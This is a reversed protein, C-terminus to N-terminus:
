AAAISSNSSGGSPGRSMQCLLVVDLLLLCLANKLETRLSNIDKAHQPSKKPTTSRPEPSSASKVSTESDTSAALIKSRKRASDDKSGSIRKSRSPPPSSDDVTKPEEQEPLWTSGLKASLRLVKSADERVAGFLASLVSRDHRSLFTRLAQGLSGIAKSPTPSARPSPHSDRTCARPSALAAATRFKLLEQLGKGTVISKHHESSGQSFRVMSAANNAVSLKMREMLVYNSPSGSPKFQKVWGWKM